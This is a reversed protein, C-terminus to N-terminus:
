PIEVGIVSSLAKLVLAQAARGPCLCRCARDQRRASSPAFREAPPTKCSPLILCLILLPSALLLGGARCKAGASGGAATLSTKYGLFRGVDDGRRRGLVTPFSVAGVNQSNIYKHKFVTWVKM